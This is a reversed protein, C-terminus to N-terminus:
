VTVANRVLKLRKELSKNHFLALYDELKAENLENITFPNLRLGAIAEPSDYVPHLHLFDLLAKEPEAMKFRWGEAELLRFGTMQMPQLAQYTFKGLQGDFTQTKRSSVSTVTFVGEPIFGHWSLASELSVYSPTYVQNAIAFLLPQSLRQGALAYWGNRIKKVLGRAQWNTLNRPNFGPSAKRIEQISIAPYDSFAKQFELFSM